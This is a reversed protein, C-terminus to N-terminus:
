SYQGSVNTSVERQGREEMISNGGDIILTQGTLYSAAPSALYMILSAVEDATGPRGVPTADGM